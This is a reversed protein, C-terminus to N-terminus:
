TPQSARVNGHRRSRRRRRFAIGRANRLGEGAEPQALGFPEYAPWALPRPRVSCKRLRRARWIKTPLLVSRAAAPNERRRDDQRGARWALPDRRRQVPRVGYRGRRSADRQKMGDGVGKARRREAGRRKAKRRRIRRLASDACSAFMSAKSWCVDGESTIEAELM